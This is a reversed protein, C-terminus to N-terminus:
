SWAGSARVRAPERGADSELLADRGPARFSREFRLWEELVWFYWLRRSASGRAAALGLERRLPEGRIWQEAVLLSDDVASTVKAHWRKAMWGEVPISFGRKSGTAVRPGIRRKAIERLVAKLTGGRLRVEFPLSAAYEWLVHDLFPARAELAYHMTSGDVKVLYESVFQTDRDYALYDALANRASQMSWSALRKDFTAGELRPGLLGHRAFDQLVPNANIFGGLGGTVYDLLHTLRKAAGRQPVVRRVGRWMDTVSAPLRRAVAQTRLLLRHRPYGLFVDDGGDGTLVVKAPTEAIARSLRLMGLASSVAFPEAFAAVLQPVGVDDADSLSLVHHRIGLARATALADDTEDVDYGPTGATFATVDGGLQAIAWCVLSSDIGGSLLAAVPVDAHLRLEVARLLLRETEAIADEFSVRPATAQDPPSWYRRVSFGNASWEAISAPPLKEIGSYISRGETVFGLQLFEAVAVPDLDAAFGAQQLARSTSAFVIRDHLRSFLLPKVGLRDRVLLLKREPDDWIAFAFMGRLRSVLGDIGWARYGHLLVETDTESVFSWGSETLERRLDHFNYIAGNFVIGITRDPSLMPQHGAASLDFIALRRHGLVANGWESLGESDPGRRSLADLMPAVLRSSTQRGAVGAIGCM